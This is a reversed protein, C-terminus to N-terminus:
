VHARGIELPTCPVMADQGTAILGVNSTHFGDVDKDPAIANIVVAEDIHSPLPLQCLIGHVSADANLEEILLLLEEQTVSADRKHEFSEMGAEVTQRGKNRVYVESAPDEGVLIVALGPMVGHSAKLATVGEAVEARIQAAIAKGDIISAAM